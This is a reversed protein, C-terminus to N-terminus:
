PNEQLNERAIMSSLLAVPVAVILFTLVSRPEPSLVIAGRNFVRAVGDNVLATVVILAFAIAGLTIRSRNIRSSLKPALYVSLWVLLLSVVVYPLLMLSDYRLQHARYEAMTPE